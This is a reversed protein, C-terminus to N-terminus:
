IKKCSAREILESEIAQFDPMKEPENILTLLAQTIKTAIKPVSAGVATIPVELNAMQPINDYSIISIDDPITLHTESIARLAGLTLDYSASVIATPKFTSSLLKKTGNYGDRWNLGFTDVAMDPHTALGLRFVSDTFGLYKEHQNSYLHSLHGIYAIRRHGLEYLYQVAKAISQRRNVEVTPHPRGGTEGYGLLPVTSHLPGPKKQSHYFEEDFFLIGDVQFRNFLAIASELPNISLIMSYNNRELEENIHTVLTSLAIREVTPWVVGITQSKKSVLSKAAINAQYGMQEALQLIKQKTEEKVLPSNNLAKSVTSYSVGAIKAIDKITVM